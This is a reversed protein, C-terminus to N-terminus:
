LDIDDEEPPAFYGEYSAEMEQTYTQSAWRQYAIYDATLSKFPGGYFRSHPRNGYEYDCDLKRNVLSIAHRGLCTFGSYEDADMLDLVHFLLELPLIGLTSLEM